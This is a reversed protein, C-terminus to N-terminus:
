PVVTLTLDNGDGGTYSAQLNNGNVTVIAGDALNNFTGSIPNASTNRIVTLVTGATLTGQTQGQLAITAGNITVGNARVLDARTQGTKAKFTYTYTADAQLALSNRLTLTAQKNSGFAPALFAGSGSGAGVTVTGSITGKGGLTGGTVSAIGTATGTTGNVVLGGSSLTTNGTYTNSGTLTLTGNGNKSLSGHTGTGVGGGDQATGSFVTSINNAGIRLTNAGLFVFGDGELSGITVKTMTDRSSVDLSGNGFVEIRSTGGFSDQQFQIAGGAGGAVGGNAILTSNGATCNKNGAGNSTFQVMAGSAGTVTGGNATLTANGGKSTDFFYAAAPGIFLGGDSFAGGALTFTGSGATASDEFQVGSGGANEVMGAGMSFVSNAATADGGFFVAAGGEGSISGGEVTFLGNAATSSETFSLNGQRQTVVANGASSSGVFFLFGKENIFMANAATSSDLFTVFGQNSFTANAATANGAFNMQGAGTGASNSPQLVFTADAASSNDLFQMRTGQAGLFFNTIVTYTIESGATASNTFNIEGFKFQHAGAVFNQGTGSQNSIGTGSITLAITGESTPLSTITFASAGPSFAIGNVEFNAIVSVASNNSVAFTATDAPGNPVTAPTWNSAIGWNSSGPNLNWTASGAQANIAFALILIILLKTKM